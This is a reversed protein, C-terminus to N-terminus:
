PAPVLPRFKTTGDRQILEALDVEWSLYDKMADTVGADREYPKLWADVPEDALRPEAATLPRGSAAWAANGGALHRVPLPTLHMMEDLALAAVIGDESTLVVTGQPAIVPLARDLRSRIAFWAGPIHGKRYDRSLSLDVVTAGDHGMLRALEVAEVRREPREVDGLVPTKPWGSDSGAAALVFVDTWGMQRLWSATMAARVFLNDALVVRANLTGVYQDTAQVLQGGPASLAGAVHGAAYERPDRVDLLYLTRKGDAQWRRVQELEVTQVGCQRAVRAAASLAWDLARRSPAQPSLRHDAGRDPVLGALTWGMTGNRLAVVRNPMGANILSQAGIISRTRGACNVVITTDPSRVLDPLRLVLEAGPVNTATPISVRVFEDFPRSDVVVIDDGGDIMRKLEGADISPTHSSHEVVEGFAKSPVNVGSFLVYGARSWGAIGDALISLDSYGHGALITAARQALGDGDDVLVIRTGRRPVLCPVRLELRSLPASRAHLLHSGSYILEERVDLIALEGGDDLMARLQAAAIPEAGVM